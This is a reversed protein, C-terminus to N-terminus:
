GSMDSPGPPDSNIEIPTGKEVGSALQASSDVATSNSEAAQAAGPITSRVQADSKKRANAILRKFDNDHSVSWQAADFDKAMVTNTPVLSSQATAIGGQTREWIDLERLLEKKTRPSTSDCNANWLNMWEIHRRQLLQRPGWDPIGLDRFKRRLQNDKLLSYNIAPLREPAKSPSIPTQRAHPQLSGFSKQKAPAPKPASGTNGTCKDLHAFVAENKMRRNCIPCAVMGDDPVFDEDQSDEIVEQVSSAQNRDQGDAQSQAMQSRSRTRVRQPSHPNVEPAESHDVQSVKRKKPAPEPDEDGGAAIRAAEKRALTLASKRANKFAELIEQVLWNRRLKLEQDGSRCTPCKGETSLCRRICLSCFTHSCSTIVPTDFFDKCVQCRLSSELPALLSLPTDLWDTSDPLDFSQEM